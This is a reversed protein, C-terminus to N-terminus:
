MKAFKEYVGVEIEFSVKDEFLWHVTIKLSINDMHFYHLSKAPISYLIHKFHWESWHTFIGLGGRGRRGIGSVVGFLM